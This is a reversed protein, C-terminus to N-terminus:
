PAKASTTSLCLQESSNLKPWQGMHVAQISTVSAIVSQPLAKDSPWLLIGSTEEVFSRVLKEQKQASQGCPNIVARATIWKLLGMVSWASGWYKLFCVTKAWRRCLFIVTPLEDFGRELIITSQKSPSHNSTIATQTSPGPIAFDSGAYVSDNLGSVPVLPPPSHETPTPALADWKKVEANITEQRTLLSNETCDLKPAALHAIDAALETKANLGDPNPPGDKIGIQHYDNSSSSITGYTVTSQGLRDQNTSDVTVGGDLASIHGANQGVQAPPGTNTTDGALKDDDKYDGANATLVYPTQYWEPGIEPPDQYSESSNPVYEPAMAKGYGKDAITHDSAVALSAAAKSMARAAVALTESAFALSKSAEYLALKHSLVRPDSSPSRYGSPSPTTDSDPRGDDSQDSSSPTSASSSFQFDGM